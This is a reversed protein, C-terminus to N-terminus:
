RRSSRNRSPPTSRSAPPASLREAPTSRSADACALWRVAGDRRRIRVEINIRGSRMAEKLASDFIPRDEDIIHERTVDSSWQDQLADYGFIQDHRLNRSMSCARRLDVDWTGMQAAEVAIALTEQMQRLAWDAAKRETIDCATCLVGVIEDASRRPDISLDYWRTEGNITIRVEQRTPVGTEIVRRKLAALKHADEPRFVDHDTKGVVDDARIGQPANLMWVYRLDPGDQGYVCIPSARLTATLREHALRLEDQSARLSEEVERSHHIDVISGIYGLFAGTEDFRPAAVGLAWRYSGDRRRVRFEYRAAVRRALTEKMASILSSQDDPHIANLWGHGLAEAATQGTFELWQPEAHTALGDADSTSSMVWFPEAAISM